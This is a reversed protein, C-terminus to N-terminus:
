SIYSVLYLYRSIRTGSHSFIYNILEMIIALYKIASFTYSRGCM